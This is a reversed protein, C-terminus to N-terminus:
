IENRVANSSTNIILQTLSTLKEYYKAINCTNRFTKRKKRKKYNSNHADFHQVHKLSNFRNM